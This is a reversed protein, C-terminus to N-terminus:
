AAAAVMLQVTCSICLLRKHINSCCCCCSLVAHQMRHARSSQLYPWSSRCHAPGIPLKTLGGQSHMAHLTKTSQTTCAALQSGGWRYAGTLQPHLRPGTVGVAAGVRSSRPQSDSSLLGAGHARSRCVQAKM